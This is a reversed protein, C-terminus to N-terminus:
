MRAPNSPDVAFDTIWRGQAPAVTSWSCGQGDDQWMGNFTGILVRGDSAIATPGNPKDRAIASACLLRFSKGGDSTYLLGSGGNIYRVVMVDPNSPHLAIDAFREVPGAHAVSAVLLPFGAFVVRVLVRFLSMM